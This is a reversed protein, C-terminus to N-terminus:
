LEMAEVVGTRELCMTIRQLLGNQERLLQNREDLNDWLGMLGFAIDQLGWARWGDERSGDSELESEVEVWMNKWRPGLREKPEKQKRKSVRVRDIVCVSKQGVCAEYSKQCSDPDPWICAM